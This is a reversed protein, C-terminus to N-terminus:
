STMTKYEDLIPKIYSIHSFEKLPTFVQKDFVLDYDIEFVDKREDILHLDEQLLCIATTRLRPKKDDEVKSRIYFMLPIDRYTINTGLHENAFKAGKVHQPKNKFKDFPMGFKKFIGLSEPPLTEIEQRLDVLTQTTLNGRVVLETIENMRARLFKPTDKRIINLGHIYKKGSEREIGYYRKKSDGFYIVELDKEYELEMMEYEPLPYKNYRPIFVKKLTKNFIEVWSGIDENSRGSQKFFSSDTDAYIVEFGDQNLNDMAYNLARRAFFTIADAVEIKYLRFFRFGFTGYASNLIIKLAYQHKDLANLKVPDEETKMLKKIRRREGYMEKLIKPLVGVRNTHAYFLYRKGVLEDSYGTDVYKVKKKDLREIIQEITYGNEEAQAQSCIFTEPSLNFSMVTTPYLSAYDVLGIDSYLGPKPDLVIAGMYSEKESPNKTPLVVQGSCQSMIYSDVISSENMASDLTTINTMKQVLCFLNFIGLRDDIEKLIEVDRFGYRIFGPYDDKWNKWTVETLKEIDPDEIIEVAATALKNNSLNYNMKESVAILMDIHDLGVTYTAWQQDRPKKYCNVLRDVMGGSERITNYMPSMQNYDIHLLKCRNVIYPLDFQSSWWGTVVDVSYDELFAFFSLIVDEEDKCFVIIKDGSEEIKTEKLNETETEHWTFMVYKKEGSLYGQISTIPAKPNDPGMFTVDDTFTEIDFYFINRDKADAWEFKTTMLYKFEPRIDSEYIYGPYLEALSLKERISTYEVKVVNKGFISKYGVSEPIEMRPFRDLNGVQSEDFYFWDRFESKLHVREGSDSVGFRHIVWDGYSFESCVRTLKM